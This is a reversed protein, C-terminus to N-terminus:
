TTRSIEFVVRLRPGDLNQLSKMAVAPVEAYSCVSKTRHKEFELTLPGSRQWNITHASDGLVMEIAFM